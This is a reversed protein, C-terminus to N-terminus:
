AVSVIGCLRDQELVSLGCYANGVINTLASNPERSIEVTISGDNTQVAAGAGLYSRADPSGTKYGMAYSGFMGSFKDGGTENVDTSTFISVGLFEGKLGPGVLDLMSSDAAKFQVAGAEGRLSDVFQSFTVPHLLAYYPGPVARSELDAMALYWTDVTMATATVGVTNTASEVADGVLGNFYSEYSAGMDAALSEPTIDQNFGTFTALDSIQRRLASRVVAIDVSADTLLTEAVATDEAATDVFPNAGGLGAYRIRSTNSGSNNISGLQSIAPTGAVSWNRITAMDTLIVLLAQDLAVALRLDPQLGGAGATSLIPM